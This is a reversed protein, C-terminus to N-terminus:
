KEELERRELAAILAEVIDPGVHKCRRRCRNYLHHPEMGIERGCEAVSPWHEKIVTKLATPSMSPTVRTPQTGVNRPRIQKAISELKAGDTEALFLAWAPVEYDPRGPTHPGCLGTANGERLVCGCVSCRPRNDKVEQCEIPRTRLTQFHGLSM